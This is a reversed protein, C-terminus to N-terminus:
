IQQLNSYLAFRTDWLHYLPVGSEYLEDLYEMVGMINPYDHWIIMGRNSLMDMAHGTDSKVYQYEHNADIFILDIIGHYPSFDFSKTDGFLQTIKQSAPHGAFCEGVTSLFPPQEDRTWVKIEGLRKEYYSRRKEVPLDLTFIQCDPPSNIALNLTTRGELTGFEFITRPAHHSCISALTSLETITAGGSITSLRELSIQTDSEEYISFAYKTPLKGFHGNLYIHELSGQSIYKPNRLLTWLLNLRRKWRNTSL